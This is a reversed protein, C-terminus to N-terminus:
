TIMSRKQIEFCSNKTLIDTIRMSVFTEVRDYPYKEKFEHNSKQPMSQFSKILNKLFDFFIM